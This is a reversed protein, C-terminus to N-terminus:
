APDNGSSKLKKAHAYSLWLYLSVAAWFIPRITQLFIRLYNDGKMIEAYSEYFDFLAYGASYISIISLILLYKPTGPFYKVM